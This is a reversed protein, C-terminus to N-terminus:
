AGPRPRWDRALRIDRVGVLVGSSDRTLKVIASFSGKGKNKAIDEPKLFPDGEFWYEDIWQAPYGPADATPHIHAPIQRGPYPAPKITRFEYRGGPGTQIWGRLRPPDSFSHKANYYGRADTHYVYLRAGELPTHGDDGFITGRIMMPEGPEDPAGMVIRWTLNAPANAFNQAPTNSQAPAAWGLAGPGLWNLAPLSIAGGALYQVFRRRSLEPFEEVSM